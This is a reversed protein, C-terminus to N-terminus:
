KSQDALGIISKLTDLATLVFFHWNELAITVNAQHAALIDNDLAVIQREVREGSDVQQSRFVMTIDGDLEIITRVLVRAYLDEVRKEYKEESDTSSNNNGQPIERKSPPIERKSPPLKRTMRASPEAEIFSVQSKVDPPIYGTINTSVATVINMQGIDEIQMQIKDRLDEAFDKLEKHM